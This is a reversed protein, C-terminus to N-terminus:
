LELSPDCQFLELILQSKMRKSFFQAFNIGPFGDCNM